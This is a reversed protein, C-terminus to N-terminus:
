QGHRVLQASEPVTLLSYILENQSRARTYEELTEEFDLLFMTEAATAPDAQVLSVGIASADLVPVGLRHRELSRLMSWLYRRYHWLTWITRLISPLFWKRLYFGGVLNAIDLLLSHTRPALAVSCEARAAAMTGEDIRALHHLIEIRRSADGYCVALSGIRPFITVKTIATCGLVAQSLADVDREPVVGDLCVRIRGPVEHEIQYRM